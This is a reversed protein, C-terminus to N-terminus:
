TGVLKRTLALRLKEIAARRDSTCPARIPSDSYEHDLADLLVTVEGLSLSIAVITESSRISM